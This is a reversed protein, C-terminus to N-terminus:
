WIDIFFELLLQDNSNNYFNINNLLISKSNINIETEENKNEKIIDNNIFITSVCSHNNNNSINRALNVSVINITYKENLNYTNVLLDYLKIFLNKQIYNLLESDDKLIGYDCNIFSKSIYNKQEENIFGPIINVKEFDILDKSFTIKKLPHEKHLQEKINVKPENFSNFLMIKDNTKYENELVDKLNCFVDKNNRYLLETFFVDNLILSDVTNIKKMFNDKNINIVSENKEFSYFEYKLSEYFPINLPCYNKWVNILLLNRPPEEELKNFINIEGHFYGSNFVVNRMKKPFILILNSNESTFNKYKYSDEDIDTILTPNANDNLYLLSTFISSRSIRRTDFSNVDCDIHISDDYTGTTKFWFEVNIESSNIDINMEDLQFKAMDYVLKEIFDYKTKNKELLFADNTKNRKILCEDSLMPLFISEHFDNLYNIDCISLNLKNAMGRVILLYKYLSIYHCIKLYLYLYLSM